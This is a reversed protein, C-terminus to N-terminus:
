AIKEAEAKIMEWAQEVHHRETKTQGVCLRLVFKGNLKTHSLYMKGSKNLASMLQQNQEDTGKLRFCVLNLSQPASLEFRDDNKIESALWKTLEVHQRIHFRLGEVGYHRIVFWLKLARFRRGLPVHWERFDTVAGSETATNRLYEPTISLANTLAARDAVYYCSCDFNTFLWKHADFVFSDALEVGRQIYRFEPCIAATGAMAADVHLWVNHKRCIRGIEEVPDVALTSTTGVAACVFFPTKGDKKDQEIAKELLDARMTFDDAVEILRLNKRGIGAIKIDKEISSHAHASTYATLSQGVGNENASFNTARERASLIACLTAGSASDQIVGGGNNRSHFQAPLDLMEALWDLVVIELETCAPGTEWLMGQIGLASSLMDGLLSPESANAPFYAFFNPSQWHTVGPLIFREVDKLVQDFSEGNEPPHVPLSKAVEGPLVQSKVPFKEIGDRYAIIWETLQEAAKRFDESPM